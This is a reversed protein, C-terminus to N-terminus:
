KFIGVTTNVSISSCDNGGGKWMWNKVTRELDILDTEFQIPIQKKYELFYSAFLFLSGQFAFEPLRWPKAAKKLWFYQFVSTTIYSFCKYALHGPEFSLISAYLFTSFKM